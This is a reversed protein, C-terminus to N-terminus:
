SKWSTGLQSESRDVEYGLGPTLKNPVIGSEESRPKLGIEVLRRIPEGPLCRSLAADPSLSSLKM